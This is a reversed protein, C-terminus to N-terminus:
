LSVRSTAREGRKRITDFSNDVWFNTIHFVAGARAPLAPLPGRPNGPRDTEPRGPFPRSYVSWDVGIATLAAKLTPAAALLTDQLLALVVPHTGSDNVSGMGLPGFYIRGRRRAPPVAGSLTSKYSLCCAVESPLPPGDTVRGLFDFVETHLPPFGIGRTDDGAVADIPSVKVEHGTTAIAESFRNMPPGTYGPPDTVYFDRIKEAIAEARAADLVLANTDVWFTNTVNDRPLGSSHRLVVQARALAM